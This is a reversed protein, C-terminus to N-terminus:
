QAFDYSRDALRVTATGFRDHIVAPASLGGLVAPASLGGLVAELDGDVVFDLDLPTEELMLDRVAGGVLYVGDASQLWELLPQAAPLVRFAALLDARPGSIMTGTIMGRGGAPAPHPQPNSRLHEMLM